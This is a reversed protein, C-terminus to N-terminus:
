INTSPLLVSDVGRGSKNTDHLFRTLGDFEEQPACFNGRGVNSEELWRYLHVQYRSNNEPRARETRAVQSAGAAEAGSEM